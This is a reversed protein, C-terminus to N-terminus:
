FPLDDEPDPADNDPENVKSSEMGTQKESSQQQQGSGGGRSGLMTMNNGIVETVYKTVGDKEYSRTRLSGEIYIQDGKKLYKEAVEALRQWLVVKHWETRDQRNGDRDRYTETTAISLRALVTGSDFNKIEPDIGLNGVLIVKNVGNAM